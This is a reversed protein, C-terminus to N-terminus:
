PLRGAAVMRHVVLHISAWEVIDDFGGEAAERAVFVSDGDLNRAEDSGPAADTGANPGPSLLLFAAFPLTLRVSLRLDYLVVALAVAVAVVPSLRWLLGMLTFVILPIGIYHCLKNAPHRHYSAYDEFLRALDSAAM